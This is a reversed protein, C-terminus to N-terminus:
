PKGTSKRMANRLSEAYRLITIDTIVNSEKAMEKMKNENFANRRKYRSPIKNDRFYKKTRTWYHNIRIKEICSRGAITGKVLEQASNVAYKGESYHFHHANVCETVYKPQVISKVFRRDRHSESVCQTLLEIMLYGPPIEEVNSTGFRVWNVCVGGYIEYSKLFSPLAEGTPCFLYEDIDIVALWETTIGFHYICDMYAGFQIKRWKDDENNAYTFPWQILTVESKAIYPELIAAYDDTSNNNYLYFQQVGQLKHFEIWEKLYPAENQFIACIALDNKGYVYTTMSLLVVLIRISFSHM